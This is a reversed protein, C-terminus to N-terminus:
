AESSPVGDALIALRFVMQAIEKEWAPGDYPLPPEAYVDNVALRGLPLVTNLMAVNVGAARLTDFLSEDGSGDVRDSNSHLWSAGLEAAIPHYLAQLARHQRRLAQLAPVSTLLAHFTSVLCENYVTLTQELENALAGLAAVGAARESRQVAAVHAAEATAIQSDLDALVGTIAAHSATTASLADISRRSSTAAARATALNAESEALMSAMESRRKRLDALQAVYAAAAEPDVHAAIREAATATQEARQQAEQAMQARIAAIQRSRHPDATPVDLTTIM